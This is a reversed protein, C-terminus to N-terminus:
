RTGRLVLSICFAPVTIHVPLEIDLLRRVLEERHHQVAPVAFV